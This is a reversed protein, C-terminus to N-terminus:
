HSLRGLLLSKRLRLTEELVRIKFSNVLLSATVKGRVHGNKIQCPQVFLARWSLSQANTERDALRQATRHLTVAHPAAQPLSDPQISRTALHTGVNHHAPRLM